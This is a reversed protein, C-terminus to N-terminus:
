FKHIIDCQNDSFFEDLIIALSKSLNMDLAISSSSAMVHSEHRLLILEHVEGALPGPMVLSGCNLYSGPHYLGSLDHLDQPDPQIGCETPLTM